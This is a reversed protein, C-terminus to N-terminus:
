IYNKTVTTAPDMPIFHPFESNACWKKEEKTSGNKWEHMLLMKLYHNFLGAMFHLSCILTGRLPGSLIQALREHVINGEITLMTIEDELCAWM